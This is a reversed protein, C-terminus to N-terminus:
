KRVVLADVALVGKGEEFVFLPNVDLEAFLDGLDLAMRSVAVITETAAEYDLRPRGRFGAFLRDTPGQEIMTRAEDRTLPPMRLVVSDLMEVFIGGVGFAVMHGFQGDESFGAICEVGGPIMEQVLIREFPGSESARRVLEEYALKLEDQSRINLRIADAESKHAIRADLKVVVPYGLERAIAIAEVASGAVAARATPVGYASLLALSESLTWIKHPSAVVGQRILSEGSERAKLASVQDSHNEERREWYRMLHRVASLGQRIGQLIPLRVENGYRLLEESVGGYTASLFVLPKSSQGLVEAAAAAVDLSLATRRIGTAAQRNFADQSIVLLHVHEDSVVTRLSAAFESTDRQHIIAATAGGGANDLPNAPTLFEPLIKSLERKTRDSFGPLTLGVEAAVDSLMSTEGGSITVMGVGQGAPARAKLFLEVTEILENVDDVRVVNKQRLVADYVADDGALAGTHAVTARKGGASRGTKLVIIPKGQESALDAVKLFKRADKFGEIFCAIVDTDPDNVMFEIYDAAELDAENGSSILYRFGIQRELLAWMGSVSFAGSQSILGLRGMPNPGPLPGSYLAVESGANILGLCNPGHIRIGAEKALAQLERQLRGGEEGAEGFGSALVVASRMGRDIGDRIAGIVYRAPIALVYCDIEADVERVTPFAPHGLVAEYKPNIPFVRGQFGYELLNSFVTRGVGEQESAGAVAVSNPNLVCDLGAGTNSPTIGM